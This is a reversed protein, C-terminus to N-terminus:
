CSGPGIFSRSCLLAKSAGAGRGGCAPGLRAAGRWAPKVRISIIIETASRTPIISATEITLVRAINHQAAAEAPTDAKYLTQANDAQYEELWRDAKETSRNYVTVTYGQNALHGAMPYGMVGLGIFAAHKSSTSM